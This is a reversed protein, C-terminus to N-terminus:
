QLYKGPFWDYGSNANRFIFSILFALAFLVLVIPLVYHELISKKENSKNQKKRKKSKTSM